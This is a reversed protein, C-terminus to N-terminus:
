GRSGKKSHLTKKSTARELSETHRIKRVFDKVITYGGEFGMEQIERYLQAATFPGGNVKRIIYERYPDLKSKRYRNKAKPPEESNIYKKVTKRAHGTQRAIGSINWGKSNLDQILIWEDIELM